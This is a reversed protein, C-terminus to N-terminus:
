LFFIIIYFNLIFYICIILALIYYYHYSNLFYLLLLVSSFIIFSLLLLSHFITIIIDQLLQNPVPSPSRIGAEMHLTESNELGHRCGVGSPKQKNKLTEAPIFQSNSTNSILWTTCLNEFLNIKFFFFYLFNLSLVKTYFCQRM